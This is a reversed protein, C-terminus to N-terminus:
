NIESVELMIDKPEEQRVTFTLAKITGVYYDGNLKMDDRTLTIEDYVGEVEEAGDTEGYATMEEDILDQLENQLDQEAQNHNPLKFGNLVIMDVTASGEDEITIQVRDFWLEKPIKVEIKCEWVLSNSESYHDVGAFAKTEPNYLAQGQASFEGAWSGYDLTDYMHDLLKDAYPNSTQEGDITFFVWGSDGGGDWNLALEHGKAHMEDCWEVLTLQKTETQM